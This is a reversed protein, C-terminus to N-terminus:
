VSERKKSDLDERIRKELELIEEKNVEAKLGHVAVDYMKTAMYESWLLHEFVPIMKESITESAEKLWAEAETTVKFDPDKISLTIPLKKESM